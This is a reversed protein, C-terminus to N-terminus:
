GSDGASIVSFTDLDMLTRIVEVDVQLQLLEAVSPFHLVM